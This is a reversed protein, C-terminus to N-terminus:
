FHSPRENNEFNRASERVIKAMNKDQCTETRHALKWIYTRCNQGRDTVGKHPTEQVFKFDIFMLETLSFFGFITSPM